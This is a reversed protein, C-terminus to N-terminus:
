FADAWAFYGEDPSNEARVIVVFDKSDNYQALNKPIDQDYM